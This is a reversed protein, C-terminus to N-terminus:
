RLQLKNINCNSLMIVEVGISKKREKEIWKESNMVDVDGAESNRDELLLPSPACAPPRGHM